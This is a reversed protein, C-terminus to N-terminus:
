RSNEARAVAFEDARTTERFGEKYEWVAIIPFLRTFVAYLFVFYGVMGITLTIEVWTPRYSSWNFTM